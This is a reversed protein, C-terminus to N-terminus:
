NGSAAARGSDTLIVNWTQENYENCFIYREDAKGRLADKDYASTM